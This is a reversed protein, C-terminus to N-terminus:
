HIIKQIHHSETALAQQPFAEDSFIMYSSVGEASGRLLLASAIM